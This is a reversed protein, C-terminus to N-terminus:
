GERLPLWWPNGRGCCDIAQHPGKGGQTLTLVSHPTLESKLCNGLL